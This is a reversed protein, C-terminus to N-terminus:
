LRRIWKMSEALRILNWSKNEGTLKEFLNVWELDKNGNTRLQWIALDYEIRHSIAQCRGFFTHM